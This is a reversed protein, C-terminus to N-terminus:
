QRPPCPPEWDKPLLEQIQPIEIKYRLDLWHFWESITLVMMGKNVIVSPERSFMEVYRRRIHRRLFILGRYELSMAQLLEFM